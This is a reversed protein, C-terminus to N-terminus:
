LENGCMWLRGQAVYLVVSLVDNSLLLLHCCGFDDSQEDLGANIFSKQSIQSATVDCPILFACPFRCCIKWM